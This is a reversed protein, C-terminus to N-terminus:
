RMSCVRMCACFVCVFPAVDAFALAANVFAPAVVDGVTTTM